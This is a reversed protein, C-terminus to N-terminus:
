LYDFVRLDEYLTSWTDTETRRKLREIGERNEKQALALVDEGMRWVGCRFPEKKEVAILYVPLREGCVEALLARYFALQHAYGYPRADSELYSLDDCTKPNIPSGVAYRAEFRDREELILVHAARGLRYAPRDEDEILGLQKKEYLLPCKRFDALRHSTLCEATRAHYVEAPERILLDTNILPEM